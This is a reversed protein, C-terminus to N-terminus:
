PRRLLNQILAGFEPAADDKVIGDSGPRFLAGLVVARDKEEVSQGKLMALFTMIMTRREDADSALHYSGLYIRLLIRGAWFVATTMLLAFATSKFLAAYPIAGGEVPLHSAAVSYLCFLAGASALSYGGLIWGANRYKKQYKESREEWYKVPAQLQMQAAYAASTGEM